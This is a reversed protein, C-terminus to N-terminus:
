FGLDDDSISFFEAAPFRKRLARVLEASYRDGSAEGASVLIKM